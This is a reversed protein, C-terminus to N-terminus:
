FGMTCQMFELCKMFILVEFFVQICKGMVRFSYYRLYTKSLSIPCQMQNIPHTIARVKIVTIEFDRLNM